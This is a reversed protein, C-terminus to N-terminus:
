ASSWCSSGSSAWIAAATTSIGPLSADNREIFLAFGALIAFVAQIGVLIALVSLLVPRHPAETSM